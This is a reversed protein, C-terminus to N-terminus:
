EGSVASAKYTRIADICVKGQVGAADVGVTISDIGTVDVASLESLPIAWLEWTDITTAAPDPHDITIEKGAKDVLVVYMPAAGNNPDGALQLQLDAAGGQSLDLAPDFFRTVESKPALTNNYTFPMSQSGEYVVTKEAEDGNGVVGGNEAQNEFGDVWYEWIRLGEKSTYREFDDIMLHDPTLFAWVEGEYVPPAGLENVENVKWFYSTDLELIGPDYSPESVTAVVASGDIVAQEDTSFLVEHEVAERGARWQLTVAVADTITGTAPLPERALVPIYYFRLESLGKQPLGLMSHNSLGTIRVHRAMIGGLDVDEGAYDPAGSARALEVTGLENWTESDESYEVLAEKIGFGLIGETQTNHNWVHVKDLKHVKEFEFQISPNIDTDTGLWMDEQRTSHEDRENLGSGNVTNNPDQPDTASSATARVAGIPVPLSVPEVEFSWIDGRFVTLDPPSNVEDVRWYYTTGFRLVGPDFTNADQGLGVLVDMPNDRDANNVDAFAAGFYVDHTDAFIGPTWSLIVERSVDVATDMPHPNESAGQNAAKDFFLGSIVSNSSAVHIINIVVHGQIEWVLYKGEIYETMEHSDLIEGTVADAVEVRTERNNADWDLFYVAVQHKRGDALNIDITWPTSNFWCAALRDGGGGKELARVDDTSDAWTWPSNNNPTVEAYAPYAEEDAIIHYGDAGYMEKWNGQTEIDLGVFEVSASQAWVSGAGFILTAIAYFFCHTSRIRM